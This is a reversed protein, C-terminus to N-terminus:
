VQNALEYSRKLRMMYELQPEEDIMCNLIVRKPPISVRDLGRERTRDYALPLYIVRYCYINEAATPELSSFDQSDVVRGLAAGITTLSDAGFSTDVGWNITTGHIIHTRNFNGSLGAFQPPVIFGPASLVMRALQASTIPVSSLITTEFFIAAYAKLPNLPDDVKWNMDVASARQEFSNRFYVTLDDLTYGSLDLKAENFWYQNNFGNIPTYDSEADPQFEWAGGATIEDDQLYLGPFEVNLIRDM